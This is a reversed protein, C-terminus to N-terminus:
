NSNPAYQNDQRNSTKFAGEYVSNRPIVPSNMGGGSRLATAEEITMVKQIIISGTHERAEEATMVRQPKAMSVHEARQVGKRSRRKTSTSGDSAHKPSLSTTPSAGLVDIAESRRVKELVPSTSSATTKSYEFEYRASQDVGRNTFLKVPSSQQLISQQAIRSSSFSPHSSGNPMPARGSRPISRDGLSRISQSRPTRADHTSDRTTDLSVIGSTPDMPRPRVWTFNCDVGYHDSLQTGPYAKSKKVLFPEIKASTPLLCDVETGSQNQMFFVYDLSSDPMFAADDQNSLLTEKRKSDFITVPHTGDKQFLLYRAHVNVKKLENLLMLYEDSHKAGPPDDPGPRANINFDGGLIIPWRRRSEPPIDGSRGAECDNIRMRMFSVLEKIQSRRVERQKQVSRQDGAYTAQLHTTFVHACMHGDAPQLMAYLVGKMALADTWTGASYTMYAKSIIKWRSLIVLGGDILGSTWNSPAPSAVSHFGVTQAHKLFHERRSSLSGFMEQLCLVDYKQLIEDKFIRLRTDKYDNSMIDSPNPPRLFMNYSLVRVNSDLRPPQTALVGNAGSEIVPWQWVHSTGDSALAWFKAHWNLWGKFTIPGKDHTDTAEMRRKTLFAEIHGHAALYQDLTIVFLESDLPEGHQCQEQLLRKTLEAQSLAGNVISRLARVFTIEDLSLVTVEEETSARSVDDSYVSSSSPTPLAAMAKHSYAQSSGDYAELEGIMKYMDYTFKWAFDLTREISEFAVCGGAEEIEQCQKKLHHEM